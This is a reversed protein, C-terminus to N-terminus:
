WGTLSPCVFRLCGLFRVLGVHLRGGINERLKESGVWFLERDTWRDALLRFSFFVSCGGLNEGGGCTVEGEAIVQGLDLQVRSLGAHPRAFEIGPAKM